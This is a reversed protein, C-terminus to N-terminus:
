AVDFSQQKARINKIHKKVTNVTIYLKDAIYKYSSKARYLSWIETERQTLNYKNAESLAVNKLSKDRNEITVLLYTQESFELNFWRVRLRFITSQNIIIDESWITFKDCYKQNQILKQCLNWILSPVCNYNYNGQKIQSCINYGSTNGHILEGTETLILIGDEFNEVIKQLFYLQELDQSKTSQIVTKTLTKM